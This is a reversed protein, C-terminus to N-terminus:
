AKREIHTLGLIDQQIAALSPRAKSEYRVTRIGAQKLRADRIADRKREHTRDDLEIVAVVAGAPNCVVYDARQQAIRLRDAEATRKDSSAAEFLAQLSVQPFILHQPLAKSLRYFFELENETMLTRARYKGLKRSSSSLLAGIALVVMVVLLAALAPRNLIDIM